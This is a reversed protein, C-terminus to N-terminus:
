PLVLPLGGYVVTFKRLKPYSWTLFNSVSKFHM